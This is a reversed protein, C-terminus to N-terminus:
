VANVYGKEGVGRLHGFRGRKVGEVMRGVMGSGMGVAYLSGEWEEKGNGSEKVRAREEELFTKGGLSAKEKAKHLADIQSM